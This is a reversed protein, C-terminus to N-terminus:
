IIIHRLAYVYYDCARAFPKAGSHDISACLHAAEPTSNLFQGVYADGCGVSYSRHRPTITRASSSAVGCSQQPILAVRTAREGIFDQQSGNQEVVLSEVVAPLEGSAAGCSSASCLDLNAAVVMAVLWLMNRFMRGM